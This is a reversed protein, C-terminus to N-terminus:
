IVVTVLAKTSKGSVNEADVGLIVSTGPAFFPALEPPIVLTYSTTGSPIPVVPSLLNLPDELNLQRSVPSELYVNYAGIPITGSPASWELVGSNAGTFNFSVNQPPNPIASPLTVQEAVAITGQLLTYVTDYPSAIKGIEVDYYYTQGAVLQEGNEPAIACLIYKGNDKVQAFANITIKTPGDNVQPGLVNSITFRFQQYDTLSFENGFSDKPYIRFEFTDGKYYNINYTGPFAM